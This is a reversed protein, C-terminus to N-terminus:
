YCCPAEGEAAGNGFGLRMGNGVVSVMGDAEADGKAGAMGPVVSMSVAVPFVPAVRAPSAVIPLVVVAVMVLILVSAFSTPM